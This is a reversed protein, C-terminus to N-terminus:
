SAPIENVVKEVAKRFAKPDVAPYKYLKDEIMRFLDLLRTRDVFHREIMERVDLVDTSHGREIKSLAQAYLDYHYFDLQGVRQVFSSREQWGPLEPIFDDPSALEVNIQLKEKIKPLSKLVEDDPIAKMDIDITSERWGLSVATAGGVLYVRGSERVASGLAKM